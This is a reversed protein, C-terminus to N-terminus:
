RRQKRVHTNQSLCYEWVIYYLSRPRWCYPLPTRESDLKGPMVLLSLWGYNEHVFLFTCCWVSCYIAQANSKRKHRSHRKLSCRPYLPARFFHLRKFDTHPAIHARSIEGSVSWFWITSHVIRQETGSFSHSLFFICSMQRNNLPFKTSSSLHIRNISWLTYSKCSYHIASQICTMQSRFRSFNILFIYRHLHLAKQVLGEM